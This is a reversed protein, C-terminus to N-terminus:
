GIFQPEPSFDAAADMENEACPPAAREFLAPGLRDDGLFITVVTCTGEAERVMRRNLRRLIAWIGANDNQVVGVLRSVGEVEAQDTLVQALETGVGQGQMDDRVSIALEADGSALRVYRAVGVPVDPRETTDCFAIFGRSNIAMGNAIQEAETWVREMDVQELTQMFRRYRSDPGMNEFLDVLYPTDEPRVPRVCVKSGNKTVFSYLYPKSPM